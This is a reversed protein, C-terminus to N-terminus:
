QIAESKARRVSRVYEKLSKSYLLVFVSYIYGFLNYSFLIEIESFPQQESDTLMASTSYTTNVGEAAFDFEAGTQATPMEQATRNPTVAGLAVFTFVAGLILALVFLYRVWAIGKFLAVICVIYFIGVPISFLGLSTRINSIACYMAFVTVTILLIKGRFIMRQQKELFAALVAQQRAQSIDDAV